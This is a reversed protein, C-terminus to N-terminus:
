GIIEKYTADAMDQTQLRDWKVRIVPSAQGRLENDLLSDKVRDKQREQESDHGIEGDIQIPQPQAPNSYMLFDLEVSDTQNRAGLYVNRFEYGHKHKDASRAWREELDSAPMGQIEGAFSEVLSDAKPRNLPTDIKAKPPPKFQFVKTKSKSMSRTEPLSM